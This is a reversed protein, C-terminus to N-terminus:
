LVEKLAARGRALHTKITGVPVNLVQSIEECSLEDRYFLLLVTRYTPKIKELAAEVDVKNGIYEYTERPDKTEFRGEPDDLILLDTKGRRARLFDYVTNTAVTFIWTSFSRTGDYTKLKKFVKVFVDQTIDEADERNTVHRFVYGYVRREFLGMLQEFAM